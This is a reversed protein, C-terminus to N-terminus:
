AEPGEETQGNTWRRHKTSNILKCLKISLGALGGTGFGVMFYFDDKIATKLILSNISSKDVVKFSYDALEKALTEKYASIINQAYEADAPKGDHIVTVEGIYVENARPLPGHVEANFTACGTAMVAAVAILLGIMLFRKMM